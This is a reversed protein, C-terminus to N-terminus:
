LSFLCEVTSSITSSPKTVSDNSNTASVPLKDAKSLQYLRTAYRVSD